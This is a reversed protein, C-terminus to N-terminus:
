TLQVSTVVMSERRSAAEFWAALTPRGDRWDIVQRADFYALQAAVAIEAIAFRSDSFGEAELRDLGAIIARLQRDILEPRQDDAPRMRERVVAIAASGMGDALAQLTLAQRRDRGAAPILGAGGSADLHDCIVSSDFLIEGDALILVPVQSLPNTARLSEDTFPAVTELVIAGTFGNEHAVIRVKRAFPSLASYLLRM